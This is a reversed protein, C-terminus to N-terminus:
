QKQIEAVIEQCIKAVQRETMIVFEGGLQRSSSRDYSLEGVQKGSPLDILRIKVDVWADDTSVGTVFRTSVSVWSYDNISVEVLTGPEKPIIMDGEQINLQRGAAVVKKKMAKHWLNKYGNWDKMEIAVKSGTVNLVVPLPQSKTGVAACSTLLTALLTLLLVYLKIKM